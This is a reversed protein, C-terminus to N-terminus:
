LGRHIVQDTYTLTIADLDREDEATEITADVVTVPRYQNLTERDGGNRLFGERSGALDMLWDAHGRALYGSAVEAERQFGVNRRFLTRRFQDPFQPLYQKQVQDSSIRMRSRQVGTLYATDWCGLSNRFLFYRGHESNEYCALSYRKVESTLLDDTVWVRWAKVTKPLSGLGLGAYSVDLRLMHQTGSALGSATGSIAPKTLEASETGDLYEAVYRLVNTFDSYKPIYLFEQAFPTTEKEAPSHTFFKGGWVWDAQLSQWSGNPKRFTEGSAGDLSYFQQSVQDVQIGDGFGTVTVRFLKMITLDWDTGAPIELDDDTWASQMYAGLDAWLAGNLLGPSVITVVEVWSPAEYKELLAEIRYTTFLGAAGPEEAYLPVPDRALITQPPGDDPLPFVVTLAM